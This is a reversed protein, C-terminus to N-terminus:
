ALVITLVERLDAVLHTHPEKELAERSFAGTIVGIVYKCGATTGEQLDSSTDGIKAVEQSDDIGAIQMAKFILDPYPRGNAVEDSTVSFDILGGKDWGLRQIIADTIERSFGTDLAVKIGKSKLTKFVESAFPKEIVEAAQQYFLLMEAVFDKHVEQIFDEDEVLHKATPRQELLYKIALPKPIGMYPNIEEVTFHFGARQLAKQLAEHVNNSDKVTTGAIDFVALKISM